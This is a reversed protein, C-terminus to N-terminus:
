KLFVLELGYVAAVIFQQMQLEQFPNVYRYIRDYLLSAGFTGTCHGNERLCDGLKLGLLLLTFFSGAAAPHSSFISSTQMSGQMLRTILLLQDSGTHKVM